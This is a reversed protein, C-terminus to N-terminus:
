KLLKTSRIFAAKMAKALDKPGYLDFKAQIASQRAVFFGLADELEAIRAENPTQFDPGHEYQSPM